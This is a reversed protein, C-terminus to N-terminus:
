FLGATSGRRTLEVNEIITHVTKKLKPESMTIELKPMEVESSEGKGLTVSASIFEEKQFSFDDEMILMEDDSM